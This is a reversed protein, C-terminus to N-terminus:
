DKPLRFMKQLAEALEHGEGNQAAHKLTVIPGSLLKKLLAQTM